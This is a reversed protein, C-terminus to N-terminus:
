KKEIFLVDFGPPAVFSQVRGGVVKVVISFEGTKSNFWRAKFKYSFGSLDVTCTSDNDLFIVYQNGKNALCYMSSSVSKDYSASDFMFKSEKIFKQLYGFYTFQKSLRPDNSYVFSGGSSKRIIVEAYNALISHGTTFTKWAGIRNVEPDAQDYTDADGDSDLGVLTPYNIGYTYNIRHYCVGDSTTNGNYSESPVTVPLASRQKIYQVWYEVWDPALVENGVEFFVNDYANAIKIIKNVYKKQLMAVNMREQIPIRGTLASIDYFEDSHTGDGDNNKDVNGILSQNVHNGNGFYHRSFGMGAKKKIFIENFLSLHVYIGAAKAESIFLKLQAFWVPNFKTLDFKDGVKKYTHYKYNGTQAMCAIRIYNGGKSMDNLLGTWLDSGLCIPSHDYSSAFFLPIGLDTTLYKKNTTSVKM